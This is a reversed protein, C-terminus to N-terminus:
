FLKPNKVTSHLITALEKAIDNWSDVKDYNTRKDNLRAQIKAALDEGDGATYRWEPYDELIEKLSGVDATVLPVDCAMIEVAKQPFCYRGFDNDQNCIVAVDMANLLVPVKSLPVIGFDLMGDQKNPLKERPGAILLHIDPMEHKLIQFAEFLADIGRNQALDGVTGFVLATDSIGLERRCVAKNLPVFLDESIGNPLVFTPKRRGKSVVLRGLPRSACTVVACNRLVWRYLQKIIPLRALLFYEFNDYLDFVLPIRYKKSLCYGLIGYISDSATLIIDAKSALEASRKLFGFIGDRSLDILNYSHWSLGDEIHAKALNKGYNLCIGHIRFGKRSLALPIEWLRGYKDELLDKNTYRRKTIILISLDAIKIKPKNRM